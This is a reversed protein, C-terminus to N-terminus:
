QGTLGTLGLEALPHLLPVTQSTIGLRAPLWGALEGDAETLVDAQRQGELARCIVESCSVLEVGPIRLEPPRQSNTGNGSGGLLGAGFRLYSSRKRTKFLILELQPNRLGARQALGGLRRGFYTVRQAVVQTVVERRWADNQKFEAVFPQLADGFLLQRTSEAYYAWIGFWAKLRPNLRCIVRADAGIGAAVIWHLRRIQGCASDPGASELVGVPVQRPVASLLARSAAEPHLPMGLEKALLNGCGLPIVGLSAKGGGAVIGQLVEHVTGDGGCAILSDFGDAALNAAQKAGRTAGLSPVIATAIGASEFVKRAAQMDASRYRLRGGSFPNFILAARRM